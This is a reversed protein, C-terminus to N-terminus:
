DHPTESDYRQSQKEPDNDAQITCQGQYHTTAMTPRHFPRHNEQEALGTMILAHPTLFDTSGDEM